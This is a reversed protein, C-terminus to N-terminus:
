GDTGGPSFCQIIRQSKTNADSKNLETVFSQNTM